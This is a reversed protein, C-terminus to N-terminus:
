SNYYMASDQTFNLCVLELEIDEACLMPEISRRLEIFYERFPVVAHVIEFRYVCM